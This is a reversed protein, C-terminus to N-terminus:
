ESRMRKSTHPKRKNNHSLCATYPLERLNKSIISGQYGNKKLVQKIRSNEKASDDKNIIISYTKNFLSSVVSEKCRKQHCSSDQLYQETHQHKNCVLISIKGNNQKLLNDLFILVTNSEEKVTFKINQHLNSIHHFFNKWTRVNLFPILTM